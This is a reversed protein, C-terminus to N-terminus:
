PGSVWRPSKRLAPVLATLVSGLVLLAAGLLSLLSLRDSFPYDPWLWVILKLSGITFLPALALTASVKSADWLKLAETFSGYAVLTNICCFALLALSRGDLQLLAGPSIFPLLVIVSILYITSLIQMSGFHRLLRKQLLAYLTWAVAALFVLFVGYTEQNGLSFLGLLRDHFFLLLGGVIFLTGLKQVRFFPEKFFVVGGLILLLSSLQIVTESTEANVYNLSVSFWYYNVCLGLGAILLGGLVAVGAAQMSSLAGRMSLGGTLLLWAWLVVGAVLFRYWVVSAADMQTLVEKLAVPLVGWMFAATLSFLFGAVHRVQTDKM